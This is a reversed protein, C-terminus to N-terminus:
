LTVGLKGAVYKETNLRNTDSVVARVAIVSYIAGAFFNSNTTLDRAGVSAKNLTTNPMITTATKKSVGGVRVELDNVSKRASIVYPTNISATEDTQLIPFITSDNNRLAYLFNNAGSFGLKILGASPSVGVNNCLVFPDVSGGITQSEGIVILHSDTMEFPVSTINLIDDAGDFKLYPPFKTPDTDYDSTGAATSTGRVGTVVQQYDNSSLSNAVILQAGWILIDKALGGTTNIVGFRQGTGASAGNTVTFTFRQWEPTVTVTSFNDQVALHINKLRVTQNSGTNSKLYVSGTYTVNAGLTTTIAQSVECNSNTTLELRDASLTSDPALDFDPDITPSLYKDWVANDFEETRALLNYRASLVPRKTGTSQTAHNGALEKISINDIVATSATVSRFVIVRSGALVSAATIICSVSGTSTFAVLNANSASATQVIVSGSVSIINFTVLYSKNAEVSVSTGLNSNATNTLKEARNNQIVWDGAIIWGTSGSSFDGNPQLESSLALGKSKDLLLGVPKEVTTVPTTGSSDQFLTTIDSPDYWVGQEGAAFLSLPSFVPYGLRKWQAYQDTFSGTYGQATFFSRLRNNLAGFYGQGELYKYMRDDISGTFGLDGLIKYLDDNIQM